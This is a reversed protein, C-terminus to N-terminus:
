ISRLEYFVIYREGIPINFIDTNYAFSWEAYISKGESIDDRFRGKFIEVYRKLENLEHQDLFDKDGNFRLTEKGKENSIFITIDKRGFSVLNWLDKDVAEIVTIDNSIDLVGSKDAIFYPYYIVMGRSKYDELLEKGKKAATESIAGILRPLNIDNEDEVAVRISWLYNEDLVTEASFMKWPVTPISMSKLEYLGFYKNM